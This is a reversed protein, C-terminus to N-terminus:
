LQEQKQDPILHIFPYNSKYYHCCGLQVLLVPLAFSATEQRGYTEVRPAPCRVIHNAPHQLVHPLPLLLNLPVHPLLAPNLLLHPPPLQLTTRQLLPVLSPHLHHNVIPRHHRQNPRLHPKLLALQAPLKHKIIGILLAPAATPLTEM